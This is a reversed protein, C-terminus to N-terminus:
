KIDDGKSLLESHNIIDSIEATTLLKSVVKIFYLTAGRLLGSKEIIQKVKEPYKEPFLLDIM